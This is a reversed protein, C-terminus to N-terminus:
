SDYGLQDSTHVSWATDQLTAYQSCATGTLVILALLIIQGYHRAM